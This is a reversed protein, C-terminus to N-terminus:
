KQVIEIIKKENDLKESEIALQNMMILGNNLIDMWFFFLANYRIEWSDGEMFRKYLTKKSNTLTVCISDKGGESHKFVQLLMKRRKYEELNTIDNLIMNYAAKFEEESHQAPQIPQAEEKM